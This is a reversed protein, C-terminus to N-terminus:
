VTRCSRTARRARLSGRERPVTLAVAADPFSGNSKSGHLWKGLAGIQLGDREADFRTKSSSQNTAVLAEQSVDFEGVASRERDVAGVRSAHQACLAGPRGDAAGGVVVRLSLEAVGELHDPDARDPDPKVGRLRVVQGM